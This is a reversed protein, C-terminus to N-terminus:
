KQEYLLRELADAIRELALTMREQPDLPLRWGRTEPPPDALAWVAAAQPHIQAREGCAHLEGYPVCQGCASCTWCDHSVKESTVAGSFDLCMHGEGALYEEGCIPCTITRRFM